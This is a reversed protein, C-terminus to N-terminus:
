IMWIVHISVIMQLTAQSILGRTSDHSLEMPLKPMPADKFFLANLKIGKEM